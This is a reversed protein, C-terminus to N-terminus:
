NKTLLKGSRKLIQAAYLVWTEENLPEGKTVAKRLKASNAWYPPCYSHSEGVLWSAHVVLMDLSEQFEVVCYDM